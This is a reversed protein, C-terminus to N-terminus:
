PSGGMLVLATALKGVLRGLFGPKSRVPPPEPVPPRAAEDHPLAPPRSTPLDASRAARLQALQRARSTEVDVPNPAHSREVISGTMRGVAPIPSAVRMTRPYPVAHHLTDPGEGDIEGPPIPAVTPAQDVTSTPEVVPTDVVVGDGSCGLHSTKACAEEQDPPLEVEVVRAQALDACADPPDVPRESRAKVMADLCAPHFVAKWKEQGPKEVRVRAKIAERDGDPLSDWEAERADDEAKRRAEAEDKVRKREVRAAEEGARAAAEVDLKLAPDVLPHYVGEKIRKRITGRAYVGISTSLGGDAEVEAAGGLALRIQEHPDFTTGEFPRTGALMGLMERVLHIMDAYFGPAPDYGKIWDDLRRKHSPGERGVTPEGQDDDAEIEGARPEGPPEGRTTPGPAPRLDPSAAPPEGPHGPPVAPTGERAEGTEEPSLKLLSSSSRNIEGDGRARSSNDDDRKRREGSDVEPRAPAIPGRAGARHTGKRRRSPDRFAQVTQAPAIPGRGHIRSADDTADPPPTTLHIIRGTRNAPTQEVWELWLHGKRALGALLRSMAAANEIRCAKMLERNGPHCGRGFWDHAMIAQICLVETKTLDPRKFLLSRPTKVWGEPRTAVEPRPGIPSSQRAQIAQTITSV